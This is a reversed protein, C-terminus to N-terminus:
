RFFCTLGAYLSEVRADPADSSLFGGLDGSSFEVGLTSDPIMEITRTSQLDTRSTGVGIGDATTLGPQDLFWGVFRDGQFALQLGNGYEAFRTPGAGCETNTTLEPAPTALMTSVAALTAERSTGFPLPRASGEVTFARLGEGEIALSGTAEATPETAVPAAPATAAPPTDTANDCAGLAFLAALTLVTRTLTM